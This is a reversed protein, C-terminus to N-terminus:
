SPRMGAPSEIGYERLLGELLSLLKRGEFPKALMASPSMSSLGDSDGEGSEDASVIWPIAETKWRVARLAPSEALAGLDAIVACVGIENRALIEAAEGASEARVADFGRSALLGSVAAQVAPDADVVVVAFGPSDSAAVRTARATPQNSGAAARDGAIPIFIRLTLGASDSEVEIVGDHERVVGLVAALGLGRGAFKTSFFPDFIKQLAGPEVGPGSDRVELVGYAGPAAKQQLPRYGGPESSEELTVQRTTVQIVGVDDGIAERANEVIARLVQRILAEDAFVAPQGPEVAIRWEVQDEGGDSLQRLESEVVEGLQTARRHMAGGGAYALMQATLKAARRASSDIAHLAEQAGSGENVQSLALSTNGLVIMLLNNFDHAIGGAILGLSEMKRAQQIEDQLQLNRQEDRARTIANGFISGAIHALAQHERLWLREGSVMELTLLGLLGKRGFVPVVAASRVEVGLLAALEARAAEDLNALSSATVTEFQELRARLGPIRVSRGGDEPTDGTRSWRCLREFQRDRPQLLFFSSRDCELFEGIEGLATQIAPGVQDASTDILRTSIAVMLQEQDVRAELARQGEVQQTVDRALGRVIAPGNGDDRLTNHFELTKVEGGRGALDMLGRYTGTDLIVDLYQQWKGSSEPSLHSEFSSGVLENEPAGLARSFAENAGLVRGDLDHTWILDASNQVLDRFEAERAGLAQATKSHAVVEEELARNSTRLLRQARRQAQVFFTTMVGLSVLAALHNLLGHISRMEPPVLSPLAGPPQLWFVVTAALVLGLFVMMATLDVLFAAALPVVLFWAMSPDQFGGSRSIAIVLLVFLASVSVYGALKIRRTLRLLLLNLGVVVLTAALSWFIVTAGVRWYQILFLLGVAMIALNSAAVTRIAQASSEPRAVNAALLEARSRQKNEEDILM